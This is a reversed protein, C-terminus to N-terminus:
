GGVRGRQCGPGGAAAVYKANNEYGAKYEDGSLEQEFAKIDM